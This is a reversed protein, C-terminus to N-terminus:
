FGNTKLEVDSEGLNATHICVRIMSQRGGGENGGGGISTSGGGGSSGIKEDDTFGTLFMKTHHCGYEISM